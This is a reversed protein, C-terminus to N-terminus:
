GRGTETMTSVVCVVTQNDKIIGRDARLEFWKRRLQNQYAEQYAALTPYTTFTTNMLRRIAEM